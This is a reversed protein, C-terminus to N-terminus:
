VDKIDAEEGAIAKHWRSPPVILKRAQLDMVGLSIVLTSAVSEDSEKIMKQEVDMVLHNKMGAFHTEIRIWERNVLERKFKLHAELLVPGVKEQLITHLGLGHAHILEWRAQEYLQLYTANNVHGFTDLHHELIQLRYLTM